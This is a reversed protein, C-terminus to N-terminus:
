ARLATTVHRAGVPVTLVARSFAADPATAGQWPKQLEAGSPLRFTTVFSLTGSRPRPVLAVEVIVAVLGTMPIYLDVTHASAPPITAIVADLDEDPGYTYRASVAVHDSPTTEVTSPWTAPGVPMTGRALAKVADSSVLVSVPRDAARYAYMAIAWSQDAAWAFLELPTMVAGAFTGPQMGLGRATTLLSAEDPFVPLAALDGPWTRLQTGMTEPDVLVQLPVPRRLLEDFLARVAPAGDDAVALLQRRLRSAHRLPRVGHEGPPIRTALADREETELRQLRADDGDREARDKAQNIERAFPDAPNAASTPPAGLLAVLVVREPRQVEALVAPQEPSTVRVEIGLGRVLGAVARAQPSALEPLFVCQTPPTDSTAHAHLCRLWRQVLSPAGPAGVLGAVDVTWLLMGHPHAVVRPDHPAMLESLREAEALLIRPRGGSLLADVRAVLDDLQEAEEDSRGGVHALWVVADTSVLSTSQVPRYLKLQHGEPLTM